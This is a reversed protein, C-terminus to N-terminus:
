VYAWGSGRWEGGGSDAPFGLALNAAGRGRRWTSVARFPTPIALGQSSDDGGNEDIRGSL